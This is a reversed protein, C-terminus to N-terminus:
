AILEALRQESIGVRRAAGHLDTWVQAPLPLGTTEREAMTSVPVMVQEAVQAANLGSNM